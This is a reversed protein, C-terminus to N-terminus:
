TYCRVTIVAARAKGVGNTVRAEWYCPKTLGRAGSVDLEGDVVGNANVGLVHVPSIADSGGPGAGEVKLRFEGAAGGTCADFIRYRATHGTINMRGEYIPSFGAGTNGPWLSLDSDRAGMAVNEEPWRWGGERDEDLLLDGDGSAIVLRQKLGDGVEADHDYLQIAATGGRSDDRQLAFGRQWPSGPLNADKPGLDGIWLMAIRGDAAEYVGTTSVYNGIWTMVGEDITANHLPNNRLLADVVRQTYAVTDIASPSKPTYYSPSTM